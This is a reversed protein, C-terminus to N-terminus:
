VVVTGLIEEAKKACAACARSVGSDARCEQMIALAEHIAKALRVERKTEDPAGVYNFRKRQKPTLKTQKSM